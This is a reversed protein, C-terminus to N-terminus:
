GDGDEELEGRWQQEESGRQAVASAAPHLSVTWPTGPKSAGVPGGEEELLGLGDALDFARRLGGM